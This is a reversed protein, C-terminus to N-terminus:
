QELDNLIRNIANIERLVRASEEKTLKGGDRLEQLAKLNFILELYTNIKVNKNVEGIDSLTM